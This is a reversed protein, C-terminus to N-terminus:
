ILQLVDGPSQEDMLLTETKGGLNFSVTGWSRNEGEDMPWELNTSGSDRRNSAAWKQGKRWKDELSGRWSSFYAWCLLPNIVWLSHWHRQSSGTPRPEHSARPSCFVSSTQTEIVRFWLPAAGQTVFKCGLSSMQSKPNVLSLKWKGHLRNSQVTGATIWLQKVLM